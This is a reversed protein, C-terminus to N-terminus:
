DICIALVHEGNVPDEFTGDDHFALWVRRSGFQKLADQETLICAQGHRERVEVHTENFPPFPKIHHKTLLEKVTM